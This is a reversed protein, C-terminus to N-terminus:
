QFYTEDISLLRKSALKYASRKRDYERITDINKERNIKDKKSREEKHKEYYEKKYIQKKEKHKQNYLKHYNSVKEKNEIMYIKRSRKPYCSNLKANFMLMYKTEMDLAEHKSNYIIKDIIMFDVKDWGVERISQYVKMNYSRNKENHCSHKHTSMRRKFNKTSGVYCENGVQIKYFTYEM